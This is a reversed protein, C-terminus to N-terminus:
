EVEKSHASNEDSAYPAAWYIAIKLKHLKVSVISTDCRKLYQPTQEDIGIWHALFPQILSDKEPEEFTNLCNELGAVKFDIVISKNAM